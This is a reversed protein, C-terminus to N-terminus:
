GAALVSVVLSPRRDAIDRAAIDCHEAVATSSAALSDTVASSHHHHCGIFSSAHTAESALLQRVQADLQFLEPDDDHPIQRRVFDALRTVYEANSGSVGGCKVVQRALNDVAAPGLYLHNCPSAIFVLASLRSTPPENFTVRQLRYGGLRCERLGLHELCARVQLRGVVHYAMGWTRSGFRQVLTVVRGPSQPTGRHTISGQWFHRSYGDVFGVRRSEYSFGPKWLISGYGFVWIDEVDEVTDPDVSANEMIEDSSSSPLLVIM